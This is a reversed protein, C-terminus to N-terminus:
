VVIKEMIYLIIYTITLPPGPFCETRLIRLIYFCKSQDKENKEARLVLIELINFNM